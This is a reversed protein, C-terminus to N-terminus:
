LVMSKRRTEGKVRILLHVYKELRFFYILRDIISITYFNFLLVLLNLFSTSSTSSDTVIKARGKLNCDFDKQGNKQYRLNMIYYTPGYLNTM